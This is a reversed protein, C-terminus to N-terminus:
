FNSQLSFVIYSTNKITSNFFIFNQYQVTKDFFGSRSRITFKLQCSFTQFLYFLIVLNEKSFALFDDLFTFASISFRTIDSGSVFANYSRLRRSISSANSIRLVRSFALKLWSSTASRICVVRLATERRSDEPVPRWEGERSVSSFYACANPYEM